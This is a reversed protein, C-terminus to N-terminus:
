RVTLFRMKLEGLEIVDGDRLVAQQVKTGNLVVGNGSNLDTIVWEEERTRNIVCHHASVSDNNLALDNHGGRGIKLSIARIPHRTHAEDCMEIWAWPPPEVKKTAGVQPVIKARRTEEALREEALRRADEAARAARAAAKNRSSTLMLIATIILALAIAGVAVAVRIMRKRKEEEAKEREMRMRAEEAAKREAAKKAEEAKQREEAKKKEEEAKKKEEEAKALEEKKKREEEAKALEEPSPGMAKAVEERSVVFSGERGKASRVTITLEAAEKLSSVDVRATGAGRMVELMLPISEEPLRRTALEAAAFLGETGSALERLAAFYAQDGVTEPYASVHIVVGAERADEILKSKGIEVAAAGGPSEDKGDTLLWIAKRAEKRAALLPLGERVSSYLLTTLAADGDARVRPLAGAVEDPAGGMASIQALDRSVTFLGATNGAPLQGLMAGVADVASQITKARAPNSTDVVIMWACEPISAGAHAEWTAKLMEAGGAARAGVSTVAVDDVLRFSVALERKGKDAECVVTSSAVRIPQGCLPIPASLVLALWLPRLILARIECFTVPMPIILYQNIRDRKQFVRFEHIRIVM